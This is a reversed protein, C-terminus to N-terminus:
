VEGSNKLHTKLVRDLEELDIPKILFADCGAAFAERQFDARAHGSLFIIPVKRLVDMERMQRTATIGDMLPLGGDMLILDPQEKVALAVATEGDRAEIM